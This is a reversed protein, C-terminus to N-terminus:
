SLTATEPTRLEAFRATDLICAVRGDGLITAGSITPPRGLSPDLAKVVVDQHGLLGDVLMGRRKAGSRVVVCYNRSTRPGTGGLVEGADSVPIVQGRWLIMGHGDIQHIAENTVRLSEAVDGLPVAYREGDVAVLLSRLVALTLPLSMTFKTGKGPESAVEISGGLTRISNAVVDLGVGRGALASVRETTSLGPLFALAFVEERSPTAEAAVAGLQRAKHLIRDPDLGRGDDAVTLIVRDSRQAASLTVTAEAPKGARERDEPSELGHIVANTVLHVLPEGLRDIITKDLQTEGGSTVLRVRKEHAHAVDRLLLNFRGFVTAISVLRTAMLSGELRKLTKELSALAHELDSIGAGHQRAALDRLAERLGLSAIMTEGFSELLGDLRRADVRITSVVGDAGLEGVEASTRREFRRREPFAPTEAGASETQIFERAMTIFADSREASVPGRSARGVMEVLLGAGRLLLGSAAPRLDPREGLFACVDEMCHALAQIPTLGMMASNGKLTHLSGKLTAFLQDAPDGEEWRRELTVLTDGVAQALPACEAVYEELLEAFPNGDASM